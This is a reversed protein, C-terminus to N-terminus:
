LLSIFLLLKGLWYANKKLRSGAKIVMSHVTRVYKENLGLLGTLCTVSIHFSEGLTVSSTGLAM